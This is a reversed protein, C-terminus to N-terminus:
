ITAADQYKNEVQVYTTWMVQTRSSNFLMEYKNETHVYTVFDADIVILSTLAVTAPEGLFM